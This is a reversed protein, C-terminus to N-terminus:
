SNINLQHFSTLWQNRSHLMIKARSKILTALDQNNASRESQQDEALSRQRSNIFTTSRILVTLDWGNTSQEWQQNKMRGQYCSAFGTTTGDHAIHDLSDPDTDSQGNRSSVMWHSPNHATSKLIGNCDQADVNSWRMENHNTELQQDLLGSRIVTTYAIRKLHLHLTNSSTRTGTSKLWVELNIHDLGGQTGQLRGQFRLGGLKHSRVRSTYSPTKRPVHWRCCWSKPTDIISYFMRTSIVLELTNSLVFNTTQFKFLFCNLVINAM